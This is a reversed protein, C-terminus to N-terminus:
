SVIRKIRKKKKEYVPYLSIYISDLTIYVGNTVMHESSVSYM